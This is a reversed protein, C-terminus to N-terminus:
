YIDDFGDFSEPEISELPNGYSFPHQSEYDGNDEAPLGFPASADEPATAPSISMQTWSELEIEAIDGDEYQYEITGAKEDIAVIEFLQGNTQDLYWSSVSPYFSAM